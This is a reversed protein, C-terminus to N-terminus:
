GADRRHDGTYQCDLNGDEQDLPLDLAWPNWAFFHRSAVNMELLTLDAPVSDGTPTELLHVEGAVQRRSLPTAKTISFGVSQHLHIVPKNTAFVRLHVRDVGLRRFAWATLAVDACRAYTKGGGHEGRIFNDLEVAKETINCVGYNGIARGELDMLLFLLRRDDPLVVEELWRRTREPTPEFQTMFNRAYLKRWTTLALVIAADAPTEVDLPRLAGMPRHGEDLIPLTRRSTPELRKLLRVIAGQKMSDPM